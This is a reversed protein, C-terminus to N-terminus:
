TRGEVHIISVPCGEAADTVCQELEQPAMGRALDGDTRYKEIVQSFGDDDSQEFFEPCTEWCTACSICDDRDITVPIGDAM